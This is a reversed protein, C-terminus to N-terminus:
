YPKSRQLLTTFLYACKGKKYIGFSYVEKLKKQSLVGSIAYSRKDDICIFSGNLSVTKLAPLTFVSINKFLSVYSVKNDQAPSAKTIIIISVNKKSLKKLTRTLIYEDIFPTLILVEKKAKKIDSNYTHMLTDAEDPLMFIEQSLLIIPFFLLLRLL